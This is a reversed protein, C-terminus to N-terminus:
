NAPFRVEHHEQHECNFQSVLITGACLYFVSGIKDTEILDSLFVLVAIMGLIAGTMLMLGRIHPDATQLYVKQATMMMTVFLAIFLLLGPIGQETLLLLFYNHVTSKEPNNSVYTRFDNATYSKYLPYFSNPGSGTIWNEKAMKTAAIWRYFREVTSMDQMNYTAAMHEDFSAHYITKEYLPRYQLYRNDLLLWTSVAVLVLAASGMLWQLKGKKMVYVVIVAVGLALWAGRSYSFALGALLIILGLIWYRYGSRYLAWAVPIMCVLLAGYNVHNRFFPATVDNVTEFSFGEMGHRALIVLVTFLMAVLMLNGALFHEKKGKLFIITGLVFPIIYWIKALLFKVSILPMESLLVTILTWCLAAIILLIIRSRFLDGCLKRDRFVIFLIIPSLLWMLTEDPLDTGLSSSFQFETSLPITFLLLFYILSPKTLGALLIILVPVIGLLVFNGYALAGAVSILFLFLISRYSLIGKM